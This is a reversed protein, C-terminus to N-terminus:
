KQNLPPLSVKEFDTQEINSPLDNLESNRCEPTNKLKCSVCCPNVIPCLIGCDCTEPEEVLYDGCKAKVPDNCLAKSAFFEADSVSCPSLKIAHYHDMTPWMLYGPGCHSYSDHRIGLLHGAQHALLAALEPRLLIRNQFHTSIYAHNFTQSPLIAIHPDNACAGTRLRLNRQFALGPVMEGTVDSRHPQGLFHFGACPAWFRQSLKFLMQGATTGEETIGADREVLVTEYLRFGLFRNFGETPSRRLIRNMLIFALQMEYAAQQLSLRAAFSVHGFLRTPCASKEKAAVPTKMTSYTAAPQVTSNDYVKIARRPNRVFREIRDSSQTGSRESYPESDSAPMPTTAQVKRRKERSRDQLRIEDASMPVPKVSQKIQDLRQEDLTNSDCTVNSLSAPSNLSRAKTTYILNESYILARGQVKKGTPEIHYIEDKTVIHGFFVGAKMYGSVSSSPDDILQGQFFNLRQVSSRGDQYIMRMAFSDVQARIKFQRNFAHFDIALMPKHYTYNGVVTEQDDKLSRGSTDIDQLPGSTLSITRVYSQIEHSYQDLPDSSLDKSVISDFANWIFILIIFIQFM